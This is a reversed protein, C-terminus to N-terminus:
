TAGGGPNNTCGGLEASRQSCKEVVFPDLFAWVVMVLMYHSLIDHSTQCNRISQCKYEVICCCKLTVKLRGDILLKAFDISKIKLFFVACDELRFATIQKINNDVTAFRDHTWHTQNSTKVRLSIKHSFLQRPLEDPWQLTYSCSPWISFQTSSQCRKFECERKSKTPLLHPIVNM